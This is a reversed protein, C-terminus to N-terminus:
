MRPSDRQIELRLPGRWRCFFVGRMMINSARDGFTDSSLCISHSINSTLLSPPFLFQSTQRHVM